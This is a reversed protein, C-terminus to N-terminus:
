RLAYRAAVQPDSGRTHKGAWLDFVSGIDLAVGGRRKIWGCYIKGLFGAGVLFVEGPWRVEITERLREFATPYHPEENEDFFFKAQAPVKYLRVDDLEFARSIPGALDHGCVLSVSREERLVSEIFGERLFEFHIDTSITTTATGSCESRM